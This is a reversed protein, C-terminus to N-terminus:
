DSDNEKEVLVEKAPVFKFLHQGVEEDSYDVRLHPLMIDGVNSYIIEPITSATSVHSIYCVHWFALANRLKVFERSPIKYETGTRRDVVTFRPMSLCKHMDDDSIIAYSDPHYKFGFEILPSNDIIWNVYRLIDALQGPTSIALNVNKFKGFTIIYNLFSSRSNLIM